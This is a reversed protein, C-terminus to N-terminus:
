KTIPYSSPRPTSCRRLFRKTFHHVAVGEFVRGARGARQSCSVHSCWRKVLCSMHRKSNYELPPLHRFRCGSQTQPPHHLERCHQHRPDRASQEPAPDRFGGKQEDMPVQSHLIFVSFFEVINRGKLEDVLYRYYKSLKNIGPLFVLISEGREGHLIVVQM